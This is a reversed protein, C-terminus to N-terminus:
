SKGYANFIQRFCQDTEVGQECNSIKKNNHLFKM